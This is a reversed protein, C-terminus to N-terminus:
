LSEEGTLRSFLCCLANIVEKTYTPGAADIDPAFLEAPCKIPRKTKLEPPIAEPGIDCTLLVAFKMTVAVRVCEEFEALREKKGPLIVVLRSKEMNKQIQSEPGYLFNEDRRLVSLGCATELLNRLIVANDKIYDDEDDHLLMIDWTNESQRAEADKATAGLLSAPDGGDEESDPPQFAQRFAASFYGAMCPGDFLAERGAELFINFVLHMSGEDALLKMVDEYLQKGRVEKQAAKLCPLVAVAEAYQRNRAFAQIKLKYYEADHDEEGIDRVVALSEKHKNMLSFIDVRRKQKEVESCDSTDAAKLLARPAQFIDGFNRRLVPTTSFHESALALAQYLTRVSDKMLKKKKGENTELDAKQKYILGMQELSTVCELFGSPTGQHSNQRQAITRFITLAQNFDGTGALMLALDYAARTNEGASFKVANELNQIALKTNEEQPDFPTVKVPSKVIKKMRQVTKSQQSHDSSACMRHDDQSDEHDSGSDSKFRKANNAMAKKRRQERKGGRRTKKKGHKQNIAIAKYTLALHHYAASSRQRKVAEELYHKAKSTDKFALFLTGSKRLVSADQDDLELAKKCCAMPGAQIQSCMQYKQTEDWILRLLLGMEAYANAKLSTHAAEEGSVPNSDTIEQLLKLVDTHTVSYQGYTLYPAHQLDLAHRYAVALSFKWMWVEPEKAQPLVENFADIAYKNFRPGFRLYSAALEAKAKVKLYSMEPTEQLEKLEDLTEDAEDFSSLMSLMYVKNTLAVINNQQDEMQLVRETEELAMHQEGLQFLAFALLNRSAATQLSTKYGAKLGEELHNRLSEFAKNNKSNLLGIDKLQFSHPYDEIKKLIRKGKKDGRGAPYM